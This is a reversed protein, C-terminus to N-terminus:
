DTKGGLGAGQTKVPKKRRPAFVASDSTFSSSFLLCLGAGTDFYFRNNISRADSLRAELMPLGYLRPRLLFGGKPYQIDGQAYIDMRSSDYDIKVLYKSFFSYGIIGDIKEGYISSLIDYDSVQLILSDLTISGLSFRM